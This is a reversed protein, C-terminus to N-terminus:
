RYTKTQLLSCIEKLCRFANNFETVCSSYVYEFYKYSGEPISKPPTLELHKTILGNQTEFIYNYDKWAKNLTTDTVRQVYCDSM